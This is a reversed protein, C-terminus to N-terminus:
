PTFQITRAFQIDQPGPDMRTGNMLAVAAEGFGLGPRTEGLVRCGTVLGDARATCEVTVAVAAAITEVAPDSAQRAAPTPTKSAAPQGAAPDFMLAAALVFALM